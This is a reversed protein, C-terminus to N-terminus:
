PKTTRQEIPISRQHRDVSRQIADVIESHGAALDQREAVDTSLDFLLPPNHKQHNDYGRWGREKEKGLSEWSEYVLKYNGVRYAWLNGPQGYYSWEKRPSAEGQLLTTSLDISDFVRDAPLELGVISAITAVLDVNVGIGHVASPQITGPWWFIGPVRFGGEWSTIKGDRLPGPSGGLDYYTLWPGNDSSFFVLTNEAVGATKLTQIVQGVSWDIEEIVDGYLGARSHREFAPSRFIPVHPMSHGLFLFFPESEKAQQQIWQVSEETYRKTLTPQYAPTEIVERQRFLAIRFDESTSHKINEYTREFGEKLRADNSGVLGFYYDFGEDNPHPQDGGRDFQSIGWKGIYATSYGQDKLLEAITIESAPLPTWRNFGNQHIRIPMRGTMLGVRSPNCLPASAYFSTWRQGEAALRDIQPTRILPHGQCSLDGYGLDDCLIIVINPNSFVPQATTLLLFVILSKMKSM